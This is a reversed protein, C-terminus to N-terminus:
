EKMKCSKIFEVKNGNKCDFQVYYLTKLKLRHRYDISVYYQLIKSDEYFLPSDFILPLTKPKKGGSREANTKRTTYIIDDKHVESGHIENIGRNLSSTSTLLSSSILSRTNHQPGPQLPSLTLLIIFAARVFSPPSFLFFLCLIYVSMHSVSMHICLGMCLGM